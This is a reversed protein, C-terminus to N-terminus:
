GLPPAVPARRAGPGGVTAASNNTVV